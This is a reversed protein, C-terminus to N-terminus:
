LWSCRAPRWPFRRGLVAARGGYTFLAMLGGSPGSGSVAASEDLLVYTDPPGPLEVGHEAALLNIMHGGILLRKVDLTDLEVLRRRPVAGQPAEVRQAGVAGGPRM